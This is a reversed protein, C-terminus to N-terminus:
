DIYIFENLNMLAHCLDVLAIDEDPHENLFGLCDDLEQTTPKRSLCLEYALNIRKSPVDDESDVDRTLRAAFATARERAFDSNLLHLAQPAITTKSRVPCSLNADPKDFVELFPLRLNRRMFLYITRRNHEARDETVKWHNKLLTSTVAKPLETRVGPGGTRRNLDGSVSLMSDRIAESELRRRNRRGLLRNNPDQDILEKWLSKEEDTLNDNPLSARKYTASNVILSHLAKLDWDSEILEVALWDLLKPHTASDGMWGFDSTTGILGEGFHHHWIRNVIVRATLPHDPDTLWQAFAIRRGDATEELHLTQPTTQIVRPFEPSIEPGPRRFDGKMYVKSTPVKKTLNRAVRAKTPKETAGPLPHDTFLDLPEFFSRIRYFDQQSIPDTRHHHCQACGFRLGLIVEGINAAIGNLFNHRREEQLNIDPMDPGALLFGTAILADPSEPAVEDGAIQLRLFEDYPLGENLANIVWDRYRWAEPRVHDHEFGDTEAFRVLDLWHQAWREGYGPQGLLRSVLNEYADPSDDRLFEEIEARTPPLGILDYTVRRILQRKTALPVPKLDKAELRAVVFRDITNECLDVNEVEPVPPREVPEYAWYDRDAETIEPEDLSVQELPSDAKASPESASTFESNTWSLVSLCLLCSCINTLLKSYVNM